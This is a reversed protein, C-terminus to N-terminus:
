VYVWVAYMYIVRMNACQCMCEVYVSVCCVSIVRVNARMCVGVRVCVCVDCACEWVYVACLFAWSVVRSLLLCLFPRRPALALALRQVMWHMRLLTPNTELWQPASSQLSWHWSTPHICCVDLHEPSLSQSPPKSWTTQTCVQTSHIYTCTCCVRTKYGIRTHKDTYTRMYKHIHTHIIHTYSMDAHTHTCVYVYVCTNM